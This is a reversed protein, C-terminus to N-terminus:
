KEVLVIDDLYADGIESGTIQLFFTYPNNTNLTTFEISKQEYQSSDFELYPIDKGGPSQAGVRLRKFPHTIKGSASLIYTTDPKLTVDGM